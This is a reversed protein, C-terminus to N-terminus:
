EKVFQAVITQEKNSILITYIGIPFSTVNLEVSEGALFSKAAIKEGPMNFIEIFVGTTSFNDTEIYLISNTPNPHISILNENILPGIGTILDFGNCDEDIGNDAIETAGPYIASNYDNCDTNVTVYGTIVELCSTTDILADGFTDGDNDLYFTNTILDEDILTNCNDDLFNCTESASSNISPNGDNCDSNDLVYGSLLTFCTTSDILPNGFTDDDSDYYFYNMPLGEDIELNCNEDLLNCTEPAGPYVTANSDNCDTNDSVFGVIFPLCTTSDILNNGFSDDDFDYYYTSFLVDDDILGNCNDDILNCYEVSAPNIESDTDDCDTFDSVFGAPPYCTFITSDEEGYGDGDADFYYYTSICDPYLKLIWYDSPGFGGGGVNDETKNGSSDSDSTIGIAYGGDSTVQVVTYNLNEEGTGGFVDEWLINGVNDIKVVWIDGSKYPYVTKNGSLYSDSYGGLIFDGIPTMDMSLLYDSGNGGITKQWLIEGSSNLKLVWYDAMYSEISYNGETKDISNSSSSEGAVLFGGDPTEIVSKCEDEGYGGITNEWQINGLSDLKIIWYDDGYSNESKDYGAHSTSIGGLIYGGDSSQKISMLADSYDGVITKTWMTNGLSDLKVIYYDGYTFGSHKTGGLICGGDNTACAEFFLDTSTGGLTKEWQINGSSDLKVIWFDYGGLNAATKNGSIDSESSGGLLYGGDNVQVIDRLIDDEAGGITKQWIIDGSESLKVIWYDGGAGFAFGTGGFLEENKDGSIGSMSSGGAIFGGDFTQKVVDLWESESGGITNQWEITPYYEDILGNCDDDLSNNLEVSNPFIDPNTDDCDATDVVLGPAIYCAYIISDYDGFTDGDIDAYWLPQGEIDPDLDDILGDGDDDIGNCLEYNTSMKILWFDYLGSYVASESKDGSISSTSEGGLIINGDELVDVGYLKDDGTGGITNDTLVGGLSDIKVVWYDWGLAFGTPTFNNESKDGSISSLSYGAIMYQNEPLCQVDYLEDNATGGITNQWIINGSTDIKLIWYDKGGINAETKDGSFGSTSSGSIIYGEDCSFTINRFYDNSTGGITNQWIIGGSPNIELVWYDSYGINLETKNGSISSTSNGGLMYNGESTEILSYLEDAGTGGYAEQWDVFGDSTIKIIWYDSSGFSTITKDGSIGSTSYGGLLFGGDSTEISNTLYDAASGGLTNQWIINGISDLKIIWYDKDGYNAEVKDGSIGSESYGGILYGGDNTKIATTLYEYGSGGITNQWIINGVSDLKLIWFDYDGINPETKDYGAGSSSYGAALLNNGQLKLIVRCGDSNIGGLTNQWEIEPSAQSFVNGSIILAALITYFPLKMKPPFTTLISVMENSILIIQM